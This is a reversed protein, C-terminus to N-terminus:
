DIERRFDRHVLLTGFDQFVRYGRKILSFRDLKFAASESNSAM